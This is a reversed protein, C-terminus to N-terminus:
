DTTTLMEAYAQKLPAEPLLEYYRTLESGPEFPSARLAQVQRRVIRDVLNLYATIRRARPDEDRDTIPEYPEGEKECHVKRIQEILVDDVLSIVSSIGYRAVRLPTDITFGTGMVPIHFSHPRQSAVDTIGSAIPETKTM